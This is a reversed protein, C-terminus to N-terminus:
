RAPPPAPEPAPTAAEFASGGDGGSRRLHLGLGIQHLLHQAEAPQVGHRRDGAAATRGHRFRGPRWRLRPRRQRPPHQRHAPHLLRDGEGEECPGGSGQEALRRLRQAKYVGDGRIEVLHPRRRDGRQQQRGRAVGGAAEGIHRQGLDAAGIAVDGRFALAPRPRPACRGCAAGNPLPRM